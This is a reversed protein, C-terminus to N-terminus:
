SAEVVLKDSESQQISVIYVLFSIQTLAAVIEHGSLVKEKQFCIFCEPYNM